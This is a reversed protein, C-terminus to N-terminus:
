AALLEMESEDKQLDSNILQEFIYEEDKNCIYVEVESNYDEAEQEKVNIGVENLDDILEEKSVNDFYSDIEEEIKDPNIDLNENQKLEALSDM